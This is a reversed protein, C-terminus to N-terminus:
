YADNWIAGIQLSSSCTPQKIIHCSIMAGNWIRCQRSTRQQESNAWAYTKELWRGLIVLGVRSAHTHYRQVGFARPSIKERELRIGYSNHLQIASVARSSESEARSKRNRAREGFIPLVSVKTSPLRYKAVLARAFVSRCSGVGAARPMYFDRLGCWYNTSRRTNLLTLFIHRHAGAISVSTQTDTCHAM